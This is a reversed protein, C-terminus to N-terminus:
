VESILEELETKPVISTLNDKKNVHENLITSSNETRICNELVGIVLTYYYKNKSNIVLVYFLVIFFITLLFLIIYLAKSPITISVVITLISLSLALISFCAYLFDKDKEFNANYINLLNTKMEITPIENIINTIQALIPSYLKNKVKTKYKTKISKKLNNSYLKDLKDLYDELTLDMTIEKEVKDYANIKRYELQKEILQMEIEQCHLKQYDSLKFSYRILDILAHATGMGIFFLFVSFIIPNNQIGSDSIEQFLYVYLLLVLGLFASLTVDSARSGYYDIEELRVILAESSVANSEYLIELKNEFKARKCDFSLTNDNLMNRAMNNIQKTLESQANKKM